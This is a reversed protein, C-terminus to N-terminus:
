EPVMTSYRGGVFPPDFITFWNLKEAIPPSVRGNVVLFHPDVVMAERTAKCKNYGVHNLMSCAVIVLCMHTLNKPMLTRNRESSYFHYVWCDWTRM